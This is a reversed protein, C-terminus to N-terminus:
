KIVVVYITLAFKVKKHHIFKNFNACNLSKPIIRVWINPCTFTSYLLSHCQHKFSLKEKLWFFACQCVCLLSKLHRWKKMVSLSENNNICNNNSNNHRRKKFARRSLFYNKIASIFSNLFSCGKAEDCDLCLCDPFYFYLHM